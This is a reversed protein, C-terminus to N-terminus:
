VRCAVYLDHLEELTADQPRKNAIHKQVRVPITEVVQMLANKLSKRRYRFITKVFNFFNAEDHVFLECKKKEFLLIASNVRPKPAFYRAPVAFGKTITFHYNAYVTLAGYLSSGVPARLRDGYEKQLMLVAHRVYKKQEIIKDLIETTISYPINGVIVPEGLGAITVKLFDNHIIEVNSASKERLKAILAPDIEVAFVKLARKALQATLMGKGAGIECVVENDVRAFDVIRQAIRPSNLFHQGYRRRYRFSRPPM